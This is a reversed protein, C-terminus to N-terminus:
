VRRDIERIKLVLGAILALIIITSVALGLRRFDREALARDGAEIGSQTVVLGEEVDAAVAVLDFGHVATRAGIRANNAAELEFIAQSVEMGAQEARDLLYHASDFRADLSDILQRMTAAVTGGADDPVHCQACVAGESVGLMATTADVVAHNGHCTACGPVGLMTFTEAHRSGRFLEGMTAHCQGCVNGVWSFGPPAAGHNGHCDNCTPASLDGEEVLMRHHISTEYRELQNTPVDYSAMYDPDAHCTGCLGAVNLPHVSSQPDTPPRVNHAPHCSSCTAVLTDGEQNLRQGHVSTLYETVQDVRLSPNYRRMFGADSHCRGCVDLLMRGRPRGVFGRSPDMSEFGAATADGGHCAVCGFGRAAHVDGSFRSVPASLREDDLVGHCAVCTDVDPEQAHASQFAFLPWLALPTM